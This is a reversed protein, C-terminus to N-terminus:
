IKQTYDSLKEGEGHQIELPENSMRILGFASYLYRTAAM